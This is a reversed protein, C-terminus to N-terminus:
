EIRDHIAVAGYFRHGLTKECYDSFRSDSTAGYNGGMMGHANNPQWLSRSFVAPVIKLTGPLDGKMLIAPPYNPHDEPDFPGPVNVLILTDEFASIGRNTCDGFRAARYVNILLGM